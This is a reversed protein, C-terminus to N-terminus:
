AGILADCFFNFRIIRQEAVNTREKCAKVFAGYKGDFEEREIADALETLQQQANPSLAKPLTDSNPYTTRLSQQPTATHILALVLAYVNYPKMLMGGKLENFSDLV